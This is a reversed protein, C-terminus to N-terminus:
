NIKHMRNRPYVASTHLQTTCSMTSDRGRRFGTRFTKLAEQFDLIPELVEYSVVANSKDVLFCRNERVIYGLLFMARDLHSLTMVEGGVYYNLRNASNTYMFCDGVWQGSRVKEGIEHLLEFAGEVGREM